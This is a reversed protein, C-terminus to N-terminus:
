HWLVSFCHQSQALIYCDTNYENSINSVNVYCPNVFPEITLKSILRICFKQTSISSFLVASESYISKSIFYTPSLTTIATYLLVFNSFDIIENEM